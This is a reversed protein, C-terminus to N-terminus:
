IRRRLERLHAEEIGEFAGKMLYFILILKKLRLTEKAVLSLKSNRKEDDQSAVRRDGRAGQGRKDCTSMARMGENQADYTRGRTM